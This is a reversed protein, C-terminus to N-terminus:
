DSYTTGSLLISVIGTDSESLWGGIMVTDGIRVTLPVGGMANWRTWTMQNSQTVVGNEFSAVYPTPATASLPMNAFWHLDGLGRWVTVPLGDATLVAGGLHRTSGEVFAPSVYSTAATPALSNSSALVANLWDSRGSGTTDIGGVTLIRVSQFQFTRRGVNNPINVRLTHTGASLYPTVVKLSSGGGNLFTMNQSALAAGDVWLEVPLNEYARLTGLLKGTIDVLWWGNSPVTFTWQIQGRFLSGVLGGNFLQWTGTTGAPDYGTLNVNSVLTEAVAMNTTPSVHYLNVKDYDSIGDGATSRNAPNSGLVYEERNTLGDGDLDGYEGEHTPDTLGKEQPNLGYTLEWADPLYDDDADVSEQAYSSIYQAPIIQRTVNNIAWGASFWGSATRSTELIEIFYTQGAVLTVPASQQTIYTDFSNIPNSGDGIGTGAGSEAGLGCLKQKRSKTSDTSLWLEVGEAGTVWFRYTGTVPATLYGRARAGSIALGHKEVGTVFGAVDPASLVQPDRVMESVNINDTNLWQQFSLKGPVNTAVLPDTGLQYEELNSLGDGDPDAYQGSGAQYGTASLGNATQWADPLGDNNADAPDAAAPTLNQNQTASDIAPIAVATGPYTLAAFNSFTATVPTSGAASGDTACVGVLISAPLGTITGYGPCFWYSGDQSVFSQISDGNRVLKLWQYSGAFTSISLAASATKRMQWQMNGGSTQEVVAMQAGAATTARIMLGTKVLANPVSMNSVKVIFEGNGSWTRYYYGASDATGAIDGADVSLQVSGDPQPTWSQSAVTGVASQSFSVPLSFAWGISLHDGGTDEKALGEIYCVQGQTLSYTQSRTTQGGFNEFGTAGRNFAIRRKNFRSADTSFWLECDNDGAVYFTYDGTAPVTLTGRLRTGFNDLPPNSGPVSAKTGQVQTTNAVRSDIASYLERLNPGPIGTWRESTLGQAGVTAPLALAAAGLLRLLYVPFKKM